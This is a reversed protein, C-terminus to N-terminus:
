KPKMRLASWVENVSIMSVGQWSLSLGYEFISDRNVDSRMKSTLKPYTVWLIGNPNLMTFAQPLQMKLATFSDVFVQVIDAKNETTLIKSGEPLPELLSRYENPENLLIISRGPKLQLRDTLPKDSM